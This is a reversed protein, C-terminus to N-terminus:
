PALSIKLKASTRMKGLYFLVVFSFLTGLGQIVYPRNSMWPGINMFYKQMPFEWLNGPEEPIPNIPFWVKSFIVSLLAFAIMFYKNPEARDLSKLTFACLFPYFLIIHRSESDLFLLLFGCFFFLLGYGYKHIQEALRKWNIVAMFILPGFWTVFSIIGIFPKAISLRLITKVYIPTRYQDQNPAGLRRVILQVAILGGAALILKLVTISGLLKRLRFLSDTNLLQSFLVYLFILLSAVSIPILSTIPEVAEGGLFFRNFYLIYIIGGLMAMCILGAAVYNLKFRLPARSLEHLGFIFLTLGFYVMTPSVFAGVVSLVLIAVSNKKLFALLLLLGLFLTFPDLNVPYYFANKLIAFNVFLAVFGLWLGTQTLNLRSAIKVWLYVSLIILASNLIQFQWVINQDTISINFIKMSYYIILLPLMRGVTYQEFRNESFHDGFNKIVRAYLHGDWGLGNHVPIKEAFLVAYICYILMGCIM